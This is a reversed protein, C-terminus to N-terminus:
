RNTKEIWALVHTRLWPMTNFVAYLAPHLRVVARALPPALTIRRVSLRGEPFLRRLRAVPVGRVDPNRPNDYTFDYWLVGGGPRVWRWMAEALRAQFADDLLSSFVTSQLVVDQSGPAIAEQLALADGCHLQLAAPLVRRAQAARAELLEIGQLHEPAWGLRLLDLLNGGAGCGVELLRRQELDAWGLRAFLAAIARLREQAPLLASPNLLSYRPDQVARRAYRARVAVAEAAANAAGDGAM